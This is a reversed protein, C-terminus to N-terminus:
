SITDINHTQDLTTNQDLAAMNQFRNFGFWIVVVPADESVTGQIVSHENQLCASKWATSRMTPEGGKGDAELSLEAVKDIHRYICVHICAGDM